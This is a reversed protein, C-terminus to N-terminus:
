HIFIEEADEKIDVYEDDHIDLYLMVSDKFVYWDASSRFRKGENVLNEALKLAAFTLKDEQNVGSDNLFEPDHHRLIMQCINKPLHWSSALYYGVVTHTTVFQQREYHELTQEPREAARTLVEHYNKYRMSMAPIGADHFLGLLQLNEVPVRTKLREGILVAVQSIDAATDWFRELSICCANQDFAKKLLYGTVVQTICNVGLFMVAQKIDTITRSLGYAPSNIIKLVAASTAVDSSIINAIRTLEPEPQSLENQLAQLIEPKPPFSFGSRLDELVKDDIEIM